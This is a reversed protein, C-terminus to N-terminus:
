QPKKSIFVIRVDGILGAPLLPKDKLKFSSNYWTTKNEPHLEDGILRNRWTNTVEIEIKNEGSKLARTIDLEYPPTWLTGCDVGNIKITAINFISDFSIKAINIAGKNKVMFHNVYKATGSYYKITSDSFLTWSKLTDLTYMSASENKHFLIKWNDAFPIKEREEKTRNGNISKIGKKRFV